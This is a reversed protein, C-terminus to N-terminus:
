QLQYGGEGRVVSANVHSGARSQQAQTQTPMRQSRIGNLRSTATAMSRRSGGTTQSRLTALGTSAIRRSTTSGQTQRLPSSQSVSRRNGRLGSVMGRTSQQTAYSDLRQMGRPLTSTVQRYPSGSNVSLGGVPKSGGLRRRITSQPTLARNGSLSAKATSSLVAKGAAFVRQATNGSNVPMNAQAIGTNNIQNNAVSGTMSSRRVDKDQMVVGSTITTASEQAEAAMQQLLGSAAAAAAFQAVLAAQRSQEDAEFEVSLQQQLNRNLIESAAPDEPMSAKAGLVLPTAGSGEYNVHNGVTVDTRGSLSYQLAILSSNRPRIFDIWAVLYSGAGDAGVVPQYQNYKVHQNVRFEAGGSLMRAHVERSNTAQVECEWVLLGNDQFVALAPSTQEGGVLANWRVEQSPPVGDKDFSRVFIDTANTVEQEDQQEWAVIFGDGFAVVVPRSCVADVHNIRYEDGVPQGSAEFIRGMLNGRLNPAGQLTRGVVIESVWVAM